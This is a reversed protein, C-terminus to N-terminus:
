STFSFMPPSFINGKWKSYQLPMKKDEIKKLLNCSHNKKKKSNKVYMGGIKGGRKEKKGYM